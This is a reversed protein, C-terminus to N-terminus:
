NLSNSMTNQKQGNTGANNSFAMIVKLGGLSSRSLTLGGSGGMLRIRMHINALGNVKDRFDASDLRAQQLTIDEDSLASGNDEVTLAIQGPQHDTGIRILLRETAGQELCHKVANEVVPQLIIKPVPTGLDRESISFEVNIRDQYRIKQIEIYRRAQELEEGLTSTLLGGDSYTMYEYYKSLLHAYDALYDIGEASAMRYMQYFANYLFHPQIQAQLYQIQAQQATIRAQYERALTADLTNANENFRAYIQGFEDKSVVPIRTETEGAAVREFANLLTNIPRNVIRRLLLAFMAIGVIMILVLTVTWIIFELDIFRSADLPLLFRMIITAGRAALRIPVAMVYGDDAPWWTENLDPIYTESESDSDPFVLEIGAYNMMSGACHEILRGRSLELCVLADAYHLQGTALRFSLYVSDGDILIGDSDDYLRQFLEENLYDYRERDTVQRQQGKIMLYGRDAFPFGHCLVRLNQALLDSKEYIRRFDSSRNYSAFLNASSSVSLEWICEDVTEMQKQLIGAAGLAQARMNEMYERNYQDRVIWNATVSVGTIFVAIIIFILSLKVQLKM